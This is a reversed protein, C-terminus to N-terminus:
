YRLHYSCFAPPAIINQMWHPLLSGSSAINQLVHPFEVFGVCGVVPGVCDLLIVVWNSLLPCIIGGCCFLPGCAGIACNPDACNPLLGFLGCTAGVCNALLGPLECYGEM